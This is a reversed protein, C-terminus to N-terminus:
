KLLSLLSKLRLYVCIFLSRHMKSTNMQTWRRNSNRLQVRDPPAAPPSRSSYLASRQDLENRVVDFALRMQAIDLGVIQREARIALRTGLEDDRVFQM